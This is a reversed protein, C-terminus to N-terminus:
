GLYLRTCNAGVVFETFTPYGAAEAAAKRAAVTALTGCVVQLRYRSPAAVLLSVSVSGNVGGTLRLGTMKNRIEYDDSSGLTVTPSSQVVGIRICKPAPADLALVCPGADGDVRAAAPQEADANLPAAAVEQAYLVVEGSDPGADEGSMELRAALTWSVSPDVPHRDACAALVVGAVLLVGGVSLSSSRV